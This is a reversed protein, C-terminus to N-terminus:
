NGTKPHYDKWEPLCLIREAPIEKGRLYFKINKMIQENNKNRYVWRLESATIGCGYVTSKNAINKVSDIIGDACFMVVKNRILTQFELGAKSTKAWLEDIHYKSYIPKIVNYKNHNKLFSRFDIGRSDDNLLKRIVHDTNYRNPRIRSWVANTLTNQTIIDKHALDNLGKIAKVVKERPADLGYVIYGPRFHLAVAMDNGQFTINKGNIVDPSLQVNQLDLDVGEPLGEASINWITKQAAHITVSTVCEPLKEPLVINSVNILSLTQLSPSIFHEISIQNEPTYDRIILSSLESPVGSLNEIARGTIELSRVSDPVSLIHCHCLQLHEIGEPITHIFPSNNLEIHLTKVTTPLDSVNINECDIISLSQINAPVGALDTLNNCNEITLSTIEHPLHPLCAMHSDKIHLYGTERARDLQQPTIEDKFRATKETIYSSFMETSKLQTVPLM